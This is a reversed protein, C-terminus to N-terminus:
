THMDILVIYTKGDPDGGMETLGFEDYHYAFFEESTFIDYGEKCAHRAATTQILHQFFQRARYFESWSDKAALMQDIDMNLVKKLREVYEGKKYLVGQVSDLCDKNLKAIQKQIDDVDVKWRAYDDYNEGTGDECIAGGISRWNNENGWDEMYSLVCSCADHHSTAKIRALHLNHM